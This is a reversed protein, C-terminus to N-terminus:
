PDMLLDVYILQSTLHKGNDDGRHTMNSMGSKEIADDCADTVQKPMVSQFIAWSLGFVGLIQRDKQERESPTMSKRLINNVVGYFRRHWPGANQGFQIM